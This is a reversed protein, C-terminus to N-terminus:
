GGEALGEAQRSAGNCTSASARQARTPPTPVQCRATPPQSGRTATSSPQQLSTPTLGGQQPQTHKTATLLRSGCRATPPQSGRTATSSPQQLSTPTLGGQQPQTHKTATLLRSGCRATPPQSGRTATSSPQQLSTPTLGGQQPQTHREPPTQVSTPETLWSRQAGEAAWGEM